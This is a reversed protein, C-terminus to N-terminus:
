HNFIKLIFVIVVGTVSVYLWVPFTWKAWKKHTIFNMSIANYITMLAMPVLAVSLLIHSILIFFYIPRILGHAIFKTDGHFHHYSLYSVLFLTSSLTALSMFKIHFKVNGNKIAVYGFILFLAALSNLFANVYPLYVVWEYVTSAEPKLYIYWVLFLVIVFSLSYILTDIYNKNNKKM